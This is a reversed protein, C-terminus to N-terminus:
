GRHRTAGLRTLLWAFEFARERWAEYRGSAGGHGADMTTKLLYPGGEPALERLRAVWKAPEVFRVRTDNRSTTALVAPYRVGPRVQEYPAYSKIWAYAQPDELPNGWEEWEIVTLPLSPDLMTTLPDVFPVEALAATYLEPALNLAAGVLLGGASGGMAAVRDPAGWGLDVLHRTCAVFDTFTNQKHGLKGNEYWARGLEGGGRVHAVAFVVGRELLSLRPIAFGPDMSTEYSGYGYVLLPATGDTRVDRHAVVSIPIRTGDGAVAWERRQVYDTPDYGGLVQQQKRLVLRRTAPELDYVTAPTRYSGYHVQLYPCDPDAVSGLGADFLPEDFPVEWAQELDDDAPLVVVRSLGERRIGVAVTGAVATAEHVRRGAQHPLVTRWVEPTRPDAMALAFDPGDGNHVILLRDAGAVTVHDVDYELGAARPRVLTPAARPDDLPLLRVETSTKSTACILLRRGSTSRDVSVWFREDPEVFIEPDTAPDTGLDHRRVRYPRWAADVEVYFLSRADGSWVAGYFLGDIEDALEAGTVLDRVRLTHREDGTTDVSWALLGGADDVTFAGLSFFAHHAAEAEADLIVEEGPLPGDGVRPPEWDDPDAVPCRCYRPHDHGERTRAYYWHRGRRLPVSVDTLRTRAVIEDFVTHALEAAPGTMADTYSNEATLHASVRPDDVQGLWAYPDERHDGHHGTRTPIRPPVPAAPM